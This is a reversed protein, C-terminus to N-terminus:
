ETRTQQRAYATRFSGRARYLIAEVAKETRGLRDAMECVSLSELYKMELALREEDELANLTRLVTERAEAAVLSQDPGVSETDIIGEAKAARDDVARHTKALHDRLKNRAVGLLWDYVTGCRPDFTQIGRIAALFTESVLDETEQRDGPLHTELYRWVAKVYRQYLVTLSTSDGGQVARILDGDNM